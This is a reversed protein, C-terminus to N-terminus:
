STKFSNDEVPTSSTTNDRKLTKVSGGYPTSYKQDDTKRAKFDGNQTQNGNYGKHTKQTVLVNGIPIKQAM